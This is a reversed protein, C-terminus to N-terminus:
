SQRNEFDNCYDNENILVASDSIQIFHENFLEAIEKKETQVVDNNEVLITGNAQKTKGHLFPRFM